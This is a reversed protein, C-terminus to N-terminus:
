EFKGQVVEGNELWEGGWVGDAKLYEGEYLCAARVPCVGCLANVQTRVVPDSEYTDFFFDVAKGTVSDRPQAMGTCLSYERWNM